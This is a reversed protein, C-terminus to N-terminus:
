RQVLEQNPRTLPLSGRIRRSSYTSVYECCEGKPRIARM